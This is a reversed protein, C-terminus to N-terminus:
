RQNFKVDAALALLLPKLLSMFMPRQTDIFFHGGPLAHFGCAVQTLADWQRVRGIEVHADDEGAFVVMPVHLPPQPRYAYEANMAFDARIAPLVLHMLEQNNLVQESTGNLKRLAATLGTDDLEHLRRGLTRVHPAECASVMLKAPLPAARARLSRTVEFAM